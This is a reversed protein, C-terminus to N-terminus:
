VFISIADPRDTFFDARNYLVDRPLEALNEASPGGGPNLNDVFRQWADNQENNQGVSVQCGQLVFGKEAMNEKFMGMNNELIEKVRSNEMAFSVSVEQNKVTLEVKVEGLEPPQLKLIMHHEGNKLGKLIGSTLQTLTQKEFDLVQRPSHNVQPPESVSRNVEGANGSQAGFIPENKGDINQAAGQGQAKDGLDLKSNLASVVAKKDEGVAAYDNEQAFLVSEGAEDGSEVIKADVMQDSAKAASTPVQRIQVKSLDVTGMLDQYLSELAKQVVPTLSVTKDNFGSESLIQALDVFFKQLDVQPQQTQEINKIGQALMEKFQTLNFGVADDGTKAFMQALVDEGVGAQRFMDVLQEIDRNSLPIAKLEVKNGGEGTVQAVRQELGNMQQVVPNARQELGNIQPVVPNAQRSSISKLKELFLKLDFQNDGSVAMDSNKKIEDQGVGMRALLSELFPLSTEPLKVPTASAIKAFHNSFFQLLQALDLRGGNQEMKKLLVGLDAKSMGADQAAQTLLSADPLTLNWEGPKNVGEEMAQRLNDLLEKMDKAVRVLEHSTPDSESQEAAVVKNEARGRTVSKQVKNSKDVGLLNKRDDNKMQRTMHDLFSGESKGSTSNLEKNGATPKQLAAPSIMMNM